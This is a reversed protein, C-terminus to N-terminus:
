EDNWCQCRQLSGRHDRGCHHCFAGKLRTIVFMRDGEGLAELKREIEDSLAELAETSITTQSRKLVEADIAKQIEVAFLEKAFERRGSMRNAYIREAADLAAQSPQSM